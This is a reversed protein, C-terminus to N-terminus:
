NFFDCSPIEELYEVKKQDLNIKLCYSELGNSVLLYKAKMKYQYNLIQNLVKENIKVSPAKCEIIMEPQGHNNYILLDFRKKLKNITIQKEVIMLSKPYKKEFHLYKWCNQRIIEEPTLRLWKKRLEDFLYEKSNIVKTEFTYDPIM